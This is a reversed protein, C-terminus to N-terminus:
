ILSPLIFFPSIIFILIAGPPPCQIHILGSYNIVLNFENIKKSIKNNEHLVFLPKELTVFGLMMKM